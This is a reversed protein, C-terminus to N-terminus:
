AKMLTGLAPPSKRPAQYDLYAGPVGPPQWQAMLSEPDGCLILSPLMM